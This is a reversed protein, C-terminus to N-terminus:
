VDLEGNNSGRADAAYEGGGGRVPVFTRMSVRANSTYLVQTRPMSEAAAESFYWLVCVSEQTVRVFTCLSVCMHRQCRARTCKPPLYKLKSAKIM